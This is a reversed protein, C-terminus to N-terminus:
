NLLSYYCHLARRYLLVGHQGDDDLPDVDNRLQRYQEDSLSTSMEPVVIENESFESESEDNSDAGAGFTDLDAASLSIDGRFAAATFQMLPSAGGESRMPHNNWQASFEALAKNIRPVYVYHLIFLHDENYRDFYGNDELFFFIDRMMHGVTSNVDRWLREIRQNHVSKGSIHSGRGSGRQEIMFRAIEVNELGCDSRVRSPLGFDVVAKRFCQFVTSAKNNVNCKLFVVTRSFGDIGGHIVLRWPDILKHNGDVHRKM